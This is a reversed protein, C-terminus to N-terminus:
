SFLLYKRATFLLLAVAASVIMRSYIYYVGAHETWFWLLFEVLLLGMLSLVIFAAFGTTHNGIKRRGFVWKVSAIYAWVQGAIFGIGASVLYHMHLVETLLILLGIDIASTAFSVPLYRLFEIFTGPRRGALYTRLSLIM